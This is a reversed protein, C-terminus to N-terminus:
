ALNLILRHRQKGTVIVHAESSGLANTSICSYEGYDDHRMRAITLKLRYTYSNVATQKVTVYALSESQQSPTPDNGVPRNNALHREVQRFQIKNQPQNIFRMSNTQLNTGSHEYEQNRRKTDDYELSSPTYNISPNDLQSNANLLVQKSRYSIAHSNGARLHVNDWDLPPWNRNSELRSHQVPSRKSWYSNPKPFAEIQCDVELQDNLSM